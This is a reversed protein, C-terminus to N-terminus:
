DKVAATRRAPVTRLEVLSFIAGALSLVFLLYSAVLIIRARIISDATWVLHRNPLGGFQALAQPASLGNTKMFAQATPTYQTGAIYEASPPEPPYAFTLRDRNYVYLLASAAAFITLAGGTMVWFRHEAVPVKKKGQFSLLLFVCLALFSATGVSVRAAQEPPAIGKLFGSFAAFLFAVMETARLLIKRDNM